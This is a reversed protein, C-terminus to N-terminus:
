RIIGNRSQDPANTLELYPIPDVGRGSCFKCEVRTMRGAVEVVREGWGDCFHCDYDPINNVRMRGVNDRMQCYVCPCRLM